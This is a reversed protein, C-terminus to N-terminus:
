QLDMRSIIKRRSGNMKTLSFDFHPLTDTFTGEVKSSDSLVFNCNITHKNESIKVNFSGRSIYKKITFAKNKEFYFLNAGVGIKLEDVPFQEGPYFTFPLGSKSSIYTGEPLYNIDSPVFIDEISLYQGLGSLEGAKSVKLSDSFLSLAIINNTIKYDSYYPGYFEAYGWNYHPKAEYVYKAKPEDPKCAVLIIASLLFVVFQKM